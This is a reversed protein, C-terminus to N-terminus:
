ALWGLDKMLWASSGQGQLLRWSGCGLGSVDKPQAEASVGEKAGGGLGTSRFRTETVMHSTWVLCLEEEGGCEQAWCLAPEGPTGAKGM